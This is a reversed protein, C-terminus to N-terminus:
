SAAYRYSAWAGSHYVRYILNGATGYGTGGVTATGNRVLVTFHAGQHPSPDTITATATVVHFAGEIATTSSSVEVGNGGQLIPPITTTPM